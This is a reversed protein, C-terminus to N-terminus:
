GSAKVPPGLYVLNGQADVYAVLEHILEAECEGLAQHMVAWELISGLNAPSGAAWQQFEIQMQQREAATTEGNAAMETLRLIWELAKDETQSLQRETQDSTPPKM